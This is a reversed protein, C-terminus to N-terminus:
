HNIHQVSVRYDLNIQFRDLDFYVDGVKSGDDRAKKWAKSGEPQLLDKVWEYLETNDLATHDREMSEQHYALAREACCDRFKETASRNALEYGKLWKSDKDGGTGALERLWDMKGGKIDGLQKEDSMFQDNIGGIESVLPKGWELLQEDSCDRLRDGRCARLTAMEHATTPAPIPSPTVAPRPKEPAPTSGPSGAPSNAILQKAVAAAIEEASPAQPTVMRAANIRSSKAAFAQFSRKLDEESQESQQAQRILQEKLERSEAVAKTRQRTQQILTLVTFTLGVLILGTRWASKHDRLPEFTWAGVVSLVFPLVAVLIDLISDRM